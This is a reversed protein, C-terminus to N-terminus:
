NNTDDDPEKSKLEEITKEIEALIHSSCEVNTCVGEADLKHGCMKCRKVIKLAM